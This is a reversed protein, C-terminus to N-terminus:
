DSRVRLKPIRGVSVVTCDEDVGIFHRKGGPTAQVWRVRGNKFDSLVIYSRSERRPKMPRDGERFVVIGRRVQRCQKPGLVDGKKLESVPITAPEAPETPEDSPEETTATDTAETAATTGDIGDESPSQSDTSAVVQDDAQDGDDGAVVFWAGGAVLAVAAAIGVPVLFRRNLSYQGPGPQSVIEELLEQRADHLPWLDIQERPHPDRGSLPDPGLDPQDDIM